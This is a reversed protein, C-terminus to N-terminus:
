WVYIGLCVHWGLKKVTGMCQLSLQVPLHEQESSPRTDLQKAHLAFNFFPETPSSPSMSPGQASMSHRVRRVRWWKLEISGGALM